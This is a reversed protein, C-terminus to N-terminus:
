AVIFACNRCLCVASLSQRSNTSVMICWNSSLTGVFAAAEAAVHLNAMSYVFEQVFDTDHHYPLHAYQLGLDLYERRPYRLYHFRYEPYERSNQVYLLM